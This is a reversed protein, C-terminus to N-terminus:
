GYYYCPGGSKYSTTQNSKQIFVSILVKYEYIIETPLVFFGVQLVFFETLFYLAFIEEVPKEGGLWGDTEKKMYAGAGIGGLKVIGHVLMEIYFIGLLDPVM